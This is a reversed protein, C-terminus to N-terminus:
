RLLPKGALVARGLRSPDIAWSFATGDDDAETEELVSERLAKGPALLRKAKLVKHESVLRDVKVRGDVTFRHELAIVLPATVEGHVHLARDGASSAFLVEDIKLDGLVIVTSRTVMRKAELNGLVILLGERASRWDSLVGVSLDGRIVKPEDGLSWKTAEVSGKSVLAGTEELVYALRAVVRKAFPAERAILEQIEESGARRYGRPVRDADDREHYGAEVAAEAEAEGAAYAQEFTKFVKKTTTQAGGLRGRVVVLSRDSSRITIDWVAATRPNFYTLGYNDGM